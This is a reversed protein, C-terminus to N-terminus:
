RDGRPISREIGSSPPDKLLPGEVGIPPLEDISINRPNKVIRFRYGAFKGTTINWLPVKQVIKDWEV